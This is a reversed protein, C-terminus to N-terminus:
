PKDLLDILARITSLNRATTRTGTVVKDIKAALSSQGFGDPTHLWVTQGVATLTESPIAYRTLATDDIVPPDFCFLGHVTKGPADPFPCTALADRLTDGALVLVPVSLGRDALATQLRNAIATATGPGQFVLNGSALYSRVHHFGLDTCVQRLDGVPMRNGGINMGRLLAVWPNSKADRM